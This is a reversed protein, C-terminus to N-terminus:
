KVTYEYESEVLPNEGLIDEQTTIKYSFKIKDIKDIDANKLYESFFMMSSYAKKGPAVPQASLTDISKNGNIVPDKMVFHYAEDTNNEIYFDLAKEGIYNEDTFGTIVLKIGAEDVIVVDNEGPARDPVKISSADKGTPYITYEETSFYNERSYEGSEYALLTFTMEDASKIGAPKLENEPLSLTETKTTGAPVESYLFLNIMYGNISTNEFGFTMPKDTKNECDLLLEPGFIGDTNIGKVTFKFNENDAVVEDKITYDAAEDSDAAEANTGTSAENSKNAADDSKAETAEKKEGKDTTTSASCSSLMAVAMFTSFFALLIKKKM